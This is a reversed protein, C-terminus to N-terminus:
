RPSHKRGKCLALVAVAGLVDVFFDVLDCSRNPVFLQAVELAGGLVVAYWFSVRFEDTFKSKRGTVLVLFALLAYAFFHEFKDQFSFVKPKVAPTLSLVIVTLTYIVTMSWLGLNVLFGNIDEQPCNQNSM